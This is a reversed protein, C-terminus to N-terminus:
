DPIYLNLAYRELCYFRLIGSKQLSLDSLTGIRVYPLWAWYLNLYLAEYGLCARVYGTTAAPLQDYSLSLWLDTEEKTVGYSGFQRKTNAYSTCGIYTIEHHNNYKMKVIGM